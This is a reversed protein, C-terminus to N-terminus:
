GLRVGPELRAGRVWDAAAMARKGAPKVETLLVAGEGCAVVPGEAELRLVEGPAGEGETRRSRVLGLRAGALETYAGPWPSLGRIQRDVVAAERGWDVHGESKEIKDAYTAKAHDQEVPAPPDGALVRDLYEGLLKAGADMVQDHLEGATVEPGLPIEVDLFVPGEDLGETVKMIAVGSVEEGLLVARHIPAAGRLRPLLSAHVNVWGRPCLALLKPPLIKGYAAVVALEPERAALDERFVRKRVSKPQLVELDLELARKKVPPPRLKQGRGSVADPQCVVAVVETKAALVELMPVAFDPTGFFTTRM